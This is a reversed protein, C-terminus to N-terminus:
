NKEDLYNQLILAASYSDEVKRRKKGIGLNVMTDLAIKSSLTEDAVYVSYKKSLKKVFKLVSNRVGSDPLGVVIKEIGEKKIVEEVKLVGENLNNVHLTLLPSALEGESIALGIKKNGFDVGLYKM